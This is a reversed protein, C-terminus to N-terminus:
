SSNGKLRWKWSDEIRVNMGVVTLTLLDLAKLRWKWSDEIRVNIICCSTIKISIGKLRWKWSDEIRVISAIHICPKEETKWDGNEPTKLELMVCKVHCLLSILGKLRWKWSDEIRVDCYLPVLKHEYFVKLRWKWSDEIRVYDNVGDFGLAWGHKWDGNEPTKLELM